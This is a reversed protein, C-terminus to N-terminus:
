ATDAVLLSAEELMLRECDERGHSDSEWASVLEAFRVLEAGSSGKASRAIRRAGEVAPLRGTLIERAWHRAQEIRAYEADDM